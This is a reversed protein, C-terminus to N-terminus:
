EEGVNAIAIFFGMLDIIVLVTFLLLHGPLLMILIAANVLNLAYFIMILVWAWGEEFYLGFLYLISIMLMFLFLVLEVRFLTGSTDFFILLLSVCHVLLLIVMQIYKEGLM